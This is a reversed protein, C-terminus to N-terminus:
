PQLILSKWSGNIIKFVKRNNLRSKHGTWFEFYNPIVIYGGWYNPRLLSGPTDFVHQYNKIIEEFKEAPSSQESSIALANKDRNRKMWHINSREEDLKMISGEVRIQTNTSNWYFTLTVNNNFLFDKAKSSEYNSFFIFEQDNIYKINVFRSHPKNNESISSLCAAEINKHSKKCAADYLSQFELYPESTNELSLTIM